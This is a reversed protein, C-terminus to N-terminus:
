ATLVDFNFQCLGDLEADHAELGEVVAERRSSGM